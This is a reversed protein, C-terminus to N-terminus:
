ISFCWTTNHGSCMRLVTVGPKAHSNARAVVEGGLLPLVLGTFSFAPVGPLAMAAGGCLPQGAERRSPSACSQPHTFLSPSLLSRESADTTRNGNQRCLLLNQQSNSLDSAQSPCRQPADSLVPLEKSHSHERLLRPSLCSQRAAVAVETGQARCPVPQAGM